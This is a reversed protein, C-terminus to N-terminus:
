AQKLREQIQNIRDTIQDWHTGEWYIKKCGDCQWYDQRFQRVGPPVQPAAEEEPISRLIGNCIGCRNVLSGDENEKLEPSLEIGLERAVQILQDDIEDSEIYLTDAKKTESVQKDRTLLLRNEEAALEILEKDPGPDPYLTDYGLIRLWRALRGLMHDAIFKPTAKATM